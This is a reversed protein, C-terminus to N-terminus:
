LVARGGGSLATFAAGPRACLVPSEHSVGSAISSRGHEGCEREESRERDAATVLRRIRGGTWRKPSVQIDTPSLANSGGDRRLLSVSLREQFNRTDDSGRDSKKRVTVCCHRDVEDVGIDRAQRCYEITNRGNCFDAPTERRETIGSKARPRRREAERHPMRVDSGARNARTYYVSGSIEEYEAVIM